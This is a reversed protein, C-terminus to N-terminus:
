VEDGEEVVVEVLEVVADLSVVVVRGVVGVVDIGGPHVSVPRSDCSMM